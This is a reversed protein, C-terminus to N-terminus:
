SDLMKSAQASILPQPWALNLKERLVVVQEPTVDAAAAKHMKRALEYAEMKQVASDKENPRLLAEVCAIGLTLPVTTAGGDQSTPLTKGDMDVLERSLDLKM